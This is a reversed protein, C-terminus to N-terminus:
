IKKTRNVDSRNPRSEYYVNGGKTTGEQNKAGKKSVRKGGHKAKITADQKKGAATQKVKKAM